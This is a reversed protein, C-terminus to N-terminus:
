NSWAVYIHQAQDMTNHRCVQIHQAQDMTNHRCVQIHQAQDMTNHRCVQIHQAHVEMFICRHLDMTDASRYTNHM